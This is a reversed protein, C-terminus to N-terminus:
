TAPSSRFCFRCVSRWVPRLGALSVERAQRIAPVAQEPVQELLGTLVETHKQTAKDVEQLARSESLVERRLRIM